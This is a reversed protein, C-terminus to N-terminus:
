HEIIFTEDFEKVNGKSPRELGGNDRGDAGISYVEFGAPLGKYRLPQGDFPDLPVSPLFQPVLDELREVLAGKRDLRSRQTAVATVAARRRAELGAFRNAAGELAGLLMGSFVKPPFGHAKKAAEAFVERSRVLDEPTDKDSLEIAEDFTELMLRHDAGALGIVDMAKVAVAHDTPTLGYESGDKSSALKALGNASPDFVSLSAAREAIFASRLSGPLKLENFMANLRDLQSLTLDRRSLLDQAGNLAITLCAIRVLQSILFPEDTLLHGTRAANGLATIATDTDGREAAVLAELRFQQAETKLKALHPLLTNYGDTFKVPFRSRPRRLAARVTEMHDAHSKLYDEAAKLAAPSLPEVRSPRTAKSGLIPLDPDIKAIARNPLPRRGDIFAQWFEPEAEKWLELLPIAANEADPVPPHMAALEALTIPEGRKAAKAELRRIASSNGSRYSLYWIFVAIVPAFILFLIALLLNRHPPTAM